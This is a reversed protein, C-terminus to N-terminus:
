LSAHTSCCTTSVSTATRSEIRTCTSCAAVRSGCCGCRQRQRCRSRVVAVRVRSTGSQARAADGRLGRFVRRRVQNEKVLEAVSGGECLEMILRLQQDPHDNCFGVFSVINEHPPLSNLLRVEREVSDRKRTMVHTVKMARRSLVHCHVLPSKAPTLQRWCAVCRVGELEVEFVDGFSGRGLMRGVRLAAAPVM